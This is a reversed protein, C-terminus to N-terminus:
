WTVQLGVNGSVGRSHSSDTNTLYSAKAYLSVGPAVQAAVGGGIEFATAGRRTTILNTDFLTKDSGNFNRWLNATLYPRIETADWLLSGQLRAGIRGSVADSSRHDIASFIDATPDLSTRQWILQAQPELVLGAGLAIPYGGEISGTLVTGNADARIGRDSRPTGDLWSHMLVTDVYWGGPGVHTWYGGLSYANLGLKGVPARLQGVAFGRLDGEARGYGFFLGFRDRHGSPSDIGYLDLGTQLGVINGKFEPSVDGGFRQERHQGFIRGWAAAPIGEGRLLGQDGRREHFTGLMSTAVMRATAPTLANAAVEARYLPVVPGDPTAITPAGPSPTPVPSPPLAIAPPSVSDGPSPAPASSGAPLPPAPQPQPTVTTTPPASSRLYWSQESGPTIGGRYLLYEYAGAVVPGILGFAGSATTAGNVASVVEIGNDTTLAGRGGLNIITVATQGSAAGGSIVLRDSPSTSGALVTHLRLMGSQGIYNGAVTLSDGAAAPGNTLDITGANEVTVLQGATFAAIMHSGSGALIASTADVTLAGTGTGADGLALTGNFTLRSGGTLQLTEWNVFRAVDTASTNIWTLRDAGTGGDIVAAPVLSAATLNTFIAADSGAGLQFGSELVGGDSWNVTDTGNGSLLPGGVSGGFINFVNNGNGFNVFGGIRGGSLNLTDNNQAALVNGVVLGGSMTVINNALTMNISGIQGGSITVFDGENLGGLITGGTVTAFDLEGGQNVDGTILGAGMTFHDVGDSLGSGQDVTGNVTGSRMIFSDAGFGQSVNGNITGSNDISMTDIGLGVISGNITGGALNNITYAGNGSFSIAPGSGGNIQAPTGGVGNNIVITQATGSAGAGAVIGSTSGAITGSNDITLARPQAGGAFGHSIGIGSGGTSSGTITAGAGNIIATTVAANGQTLAIGLGSGAGANAGSITGFNSFTSTGAIAGSAFSLGTFASAASGAAAITGNNTLTNGATNTGFSVAQGSPAQQVSAGSGVEVTVPSGAPAAFGDPDTGSCTVTAGAGPPDPLCQAQAPLSAFLWAGALTLGALAGPPRM